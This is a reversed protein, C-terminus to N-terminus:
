SPRAMLTRLESRGAVGLTDYLRRVRRYMSRESCYFRRAIAAITNSGCLLSVLLESHDVRTGGAPPRRDHQGLRCREGPRAVPRLRAGDAGPCSEFLAQLVSEQKGVPLELNLVATAGGMMARYTQHGSLDDVIALIPALCLRDRLQALFQAQAENVAPVIMPIDDRGEAILRDPALFGIDIGHPEAWHANDALLNRLGWHALAYRCEQRNALMTTM